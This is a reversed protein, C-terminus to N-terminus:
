DTAYNVIEFEWFFWFAFAISIVGALVHYIETLQDKCGCLGGFIVCIGCCGVIVFIVVLPSMIGEIDKVLFAFGVILPMLVFYTLLLLLFQFIKVIVPIEPANSNADFQVPQQTILALFVGCMLCLHNIVFHCANPISICIICSLISLFTFMFLSTYSYYYTKGFAFYLIFGLQICALLTFILTFSCCINLKTCFHNNVCQDCNCYLLLKRVSYFISIIIWIPLLGYFSIDNNNTAVFCTIISSSILFLPIYLLLESFVYILKQILWFIIKDCKTTQHTSSYNVVLKRFTKWHIELISKSKNTFSLTIVWYTDFESLTTHCIYITFFLSYFNFYAHIFQIFYYKANFEDTLVYNETIKQKATPILHIAIDILGFTISISYILLQIIGFTSTYELGTFYNFYIIIVTSNILDGIIRALAFNTQLLADKIEFEFRIYEADNNQEAEDKIEEKPEEQQRQISISPNLLPGQDNEPSRQNEVDVATRIHLENSKNLYFQITDRHINTKKVYFWNYLLFVAYCFFSIFYGIFKIYSSIPTSHTM